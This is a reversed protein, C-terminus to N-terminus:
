SRATLPLFRSKRQLVQIAGPDMSEADRGRRRNRRADLATQLQRRLAETWGHMTRRMQAPSPGDLGVDLISCQWGRMARPFKLVVRRPDRM